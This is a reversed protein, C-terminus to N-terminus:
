WIMNTIMKVVSGILTTSPKDELYLEGFRSKIFPQLANYDEQSSNYLKLLQEDSLHFDILYKVVEMNQYQLAIKVCTEIDNCSYGHAELMRFYRSRPYECCLQFHKDQVKAGHTLLVDIKDKNQNMIAMELVSVDNHCYNPDAGYKLLMELIYTHGEMAEVIAVRGHRDVQNPDQGSLLISELLTDCSTQVLNIFEEITYSISNSSSTITTMLINKLM